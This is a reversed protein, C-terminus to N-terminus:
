RPARRLRILRASAAPSSSQQATGVGCLGESERVSVVFRRGARRSRVSDPLDTGNTQAAPLGHWVFTRPQDTKRNRALCRKILLLTEPKRAPLQDCHGPTTM